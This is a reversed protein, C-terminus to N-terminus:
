LYGLGDRVGRLDGAFRDAYAAYGLMEPGQFWDPRLLRRQDHRRLAPRRAAHARHLVEQVQALM